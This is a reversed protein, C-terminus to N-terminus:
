ELVANFIMIQLNLLGLIILLSTPNKPSKLYKHPVSVCTYSAIPVRDERPERQRLLNFNVSIRWMVGSSLFLLFDVALLM